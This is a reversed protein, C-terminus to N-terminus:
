SKKFTPMRETHTQISPPANPQPPFDAEIITFNGILLERFSSSFVSRYETRSDLVQSCQDPSINTVCLSRTFVSPQKESQLTGVKFEPVTKVQSIYGFITKREPYVGRNPPNAINVM